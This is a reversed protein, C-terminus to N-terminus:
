SRGAVLLWLSALGALTAYIAQYERNRLWQSGSWGSFMQNSLNRPFFRGTRSAYQEWATGFWTALNREEVRVQFWYLVALPGAAFALALWDKMLICFGLMMLFSGVYLPNRVVAYPGISTVEASKHLTGAAWSRIALGALVFVMGSLSGLQTVDIPSFPVTRRVVFNVVILLLFCTLSIAIRRRVIWQVFSPYYRVSPNPEKACLATTPTEEEM